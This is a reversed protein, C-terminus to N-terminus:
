RSPGTCATPAAGRAEGQAPSGASAGRPAAPTPSADGADLPRLACGRRRRSAEAGGGGPPPPLPPLGVETGYVTKLGTGEAALRFRPAGYFGHHDTIALAAYGLEAARRVLDAPHSAGDLFSFNSHCHLEAYRAMPVGCGLRVPTRDHPGSLGGRVVGCVSLRKDGRNTVGLVAGGAPPAAAALTTRRSM